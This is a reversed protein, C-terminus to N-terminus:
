TAALIIEVGSHNLDTKNRKLRLIPHQDNDSFTIDSRTPKTDVFTSAQAEAKTYIFEGMRLFGAWAIKFATDINLEEISLPVSSTIKELIDKTIPLREKKIHPYLYRAGSLM